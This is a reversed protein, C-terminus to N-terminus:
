QWRSYEGCEIATNIMSLMNELPMDDRLDSDSALIYRGGKGAVKFCDLVADRVEDASAYPLVNTSDINGILCVRDGFDQKIKSLDMGASKQIPHMADFGMDVVDAFVANIDGCSHFLAYAGRSKIHQALRRIEPLVYERMADPNFFCNTKHGLDDAIFIGDVGADIMIDIAPIMFENAKRMIDTVLDPDDAMAFSINTLGMAMLAVTFPGNLGGLIAADYGQNIEMAQLIGDIRGPAHADPVVWKEFDDRTEIPFEVPADAPWSADDKQYVTGWEDIYQNEKLSKNKLEDPLELSYGAYGGYPIFAADLNLAITAEMIDRALYEESSRGITHQFLKKSSLFDFVPIRDTEKGELTHLFRERHKM